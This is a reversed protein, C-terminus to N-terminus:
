DIRGVLSTLSRRTFTKSTLRVMSASVPDFHKNEKL